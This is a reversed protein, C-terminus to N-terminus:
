DEISDGQNISVGVMALLDDYDYEVDAEITQEDDVIPFRYHYKKSIAIWWHTPEPYPGELVGIPISPMILDYCITEHGADIHLDLGGDYNAYVRAITVNAKDMCLQNVEDISVNWTCVQVYTDAPLDVFGFLPAASKWINYQQPLRSVYLLHGEEFSYCFISVHFGPMAVFSPVVRITFPLFYFVVGSAVIEVFMYLTNAISVCDYCCTAVM